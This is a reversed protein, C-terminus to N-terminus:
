KGFIWNGDVRHWAKIEMRKPKERSGPLSRFVIHNCLHFLHANGDARCPLGQCDMGPYGSLFLFHKHNLIQPCFRQQRWHANGDASHKVHVQVIYYIALIVSHAALFIGGITWNSLPLQVLENILKNKSPASTIPLGKYLTVILAGGILLVTGFSKAQSSQVRLELKEMRFRCNWTLVSIPFQNDVFYANEQCMNSLLLFNCYLSSQGWWMSIRMSIFVRRRRIIECWQM